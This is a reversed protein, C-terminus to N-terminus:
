TRYVVPMAKLQCGEIYNHAARGALIAADASEFIALEKDVPFDFRADTFLLKHISRDVMCACWKGTWAPDAEPPAPEDTVQSTM